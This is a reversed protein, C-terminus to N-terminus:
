PKSACARVGSGACCGIMLIMGFDFGGVWGKICGKLRRRLLWRQLTKLPVGPPATHGEAGAEAPADVQIVSRELGALDDVEENMVQSSLVVCV